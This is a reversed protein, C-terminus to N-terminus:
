RRVGALAVAREEPTLMKPQRIPQGDEAFLPSNRWEGNISKALFRTLFGNLFRLSGKHRQKGDRTPIFAEGVPKGISGADALRDVNMGVHVLRARMPTYFLPVDCCAAYWRLGGRPTHRFVRLNEEGRTMRIRDQTTQLINVSM